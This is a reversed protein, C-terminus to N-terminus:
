ETSEEVELKTAEIEGAAGRQSKLLEGNARTWGLDTPIAEHEQLWRQPYEVDAM